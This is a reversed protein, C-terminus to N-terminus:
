QRESLYISIRSNLIDACEQASRDGELVPAVEEDIMNEIRSDTYPEFEVNIIYDYLQQVAEDTIYVRDESDDTLTLPYYISRHDETDKNNRQNDLYKQLIPIGGSREYLEDMIGENSLMFCIFEWAAEKNPSRESIGFMWGAETYAGNGDDSPYGVYTVEEGGFEAYVSYGMSQNIGSIILDKVLSEDDYYERGLEQFFVDIEDDTMDELVPKETLAEPHNKLYELMTIFDSESFDCTYDELSVCSNAAKFLMYDSPRYSHSDVGLFQMDSSYEEFAAIAQEPTWSEADDGVFKTKAVATRIFFSYSVAPIEGNVDFGELVNPLFDERKVGDCSDMLEYMDALVDKQLLEAMYLPALGIIDPAKDTAMDLQLARLAKSGDADDEVQEAYNVIEIEYEDSTNNFDVIYPMLLQNIGPMGMTIKIKGDQPTDEQTEEQSDSMDEPKEEGCSVSAGLTLVALTLATIKKINVKM